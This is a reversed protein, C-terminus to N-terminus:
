LTTFSRAGFILWIKDKVSQVPTQQWSVSQGHVRTVYPKRKRWASSYEGGGSGRGGGRHATDAAASARGGHVADTRDTPPRQERLRGEEAVHAHVAALGRAVQAAPHQAASLPELMVDDASVAGVTVLRALRRPLPPRGTTRSPSLPSRGGARSPCLTHRCPLLSGTAAPVSAPSFEASCSTAPEGAM